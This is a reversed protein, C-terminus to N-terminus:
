VSAEFGLGDIWIANPELHGSMRWGKISTMKDRSSIGIGLSLKKSYIAHM